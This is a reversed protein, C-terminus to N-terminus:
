RYGGRDGDFAGPSLCLSEGHFRALGEGPGSAWLRSELLRGPNAASAAGGSPLLVGAVALFAILWAEPRRVVESIAMLSRTLAPLRPLSTLVGAFGPFIVAFFGVTLSRALLLVILPYAMAGRLQRVLSDERTLWDALSDLTKTLGGTEEGVELM